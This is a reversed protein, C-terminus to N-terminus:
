PNATGLRATSPAPYSWALDHELRRALALVLLVLGLYLVAIIAWVEFVAFTQAIVVQGAYTLEAVSVASLFASEKTVTALLNVSAPLAFPLLQPYVVSLFTRLPRLGLARAAEWQGQAVSKLGGRVIEAMYASTYLAVSIGGVLVPDVRIRMVGLAAFLLMAQIIFPTNRILDVWARVPWRVFRRKAILAFALGMGALGGTIFGTLVLGITVALGKLIVDGYNSLLDIM